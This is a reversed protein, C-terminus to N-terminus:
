AGSRLGTSPMQDRSRRLLRALVANVSGSWRMLVSRCPSRLIWYRLLRMM